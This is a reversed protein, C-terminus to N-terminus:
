RNLVPQVPPNSNPDPENEASTGELVKGSWANSKSGLENALQAVEGRLQSADKTQDAAIQELKSQIGSLVARLGGRVTRESGLKGDIEDFAVKSPAPAQVPHPVPQGNQTAPADTPVAHNLSGGQADTQPADQERAGDQTQTQKEM